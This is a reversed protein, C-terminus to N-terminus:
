KRTSDGWGAVAWLSLAAATLLLQWAKCAQLYAGMRSSGTFSTPWWSACSAWSSHRSSSCPPRTIQAMLGEPEGCATCVRLM